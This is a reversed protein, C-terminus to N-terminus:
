STLRSLTCRFISYGLYAVPLTLLVNNNVQIGQDAHEGISNSTVMNELHMNGADTAAISVDSSATGTLSQELVGGQMACTVRVLQQSTSQAPQHKENLTAELQAELQRTKAELAEMRQM